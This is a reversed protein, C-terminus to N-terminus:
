TQASCVVIGQIGGSVARTALAELPERSYNVSRLLMPLNVGAILQREPRDVLQQAVNSPTAGRVDTFLLCPTQAGLTELLAQANARTTESPEAAPVDLALLREASEPFVHLAAARLASALPAHAIILIGTHM